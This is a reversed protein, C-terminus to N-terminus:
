RGYGMPRPPMPGRGMMGRGFRPGAPGALSTVLRLFGEKGVSGQLAAIQDSHLISCVQIAFTAEAELRKQERQLMAAALQDAATQASVKDGALIATAYSDRASTEAANPAAQFANRFDAAASQLASEQTSDLATASAKTLAQSLAHLPTNARPGRGQAWVTTAITVCFVLVAICTIPKHNGKMFRQIEKPM